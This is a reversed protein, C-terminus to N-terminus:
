KKKPPPAPPAPAPPPATLAALNAQAAKARKIADERRPDGELPLPLALLRKLYGAADESRGLAAACTSLEFLAAPHDPQERLFIQFLPIAEPCRGQQRAVAQALQFDMEPFRQGKMAARLEQEAEAWKGAQSKIMGLGWHPEPNRPQIQAAKSYAKFAELLNAAHLYADGLAENAAYSNPDLQVAKALEEIEKASDKKTVYLRGLGLHAAALNGDIAIAAKYEAIAEDVKGSARQLYAARALHAVASRPDAKVAEDHQKGAEAKQGDHELVHALAALYTANHPEDALLQLLQFRSEEQNENTVRDYNEALYRAVARWVAQHYKFETPALERAHKYAIMAQVPDGAALSKNGAAMMRDAPSACGLAGVMLALAVPRASMALWSSRLRPSRAVPVLARPEQDRTVPM